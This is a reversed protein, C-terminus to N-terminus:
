NGGTGGAYRGVIYPISQGYLMLVAVIDKEKVDLDTRVGPIDPYNEDRAMTKDLMRIVTEKYQGKEHVEMVMAYMGPPQQTHPYSKVMLEKVIKEVATKVMDM